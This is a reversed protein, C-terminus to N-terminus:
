ADLVLINHDLAYRSTIFQWVGDLLVDWVSEDSRVIGLVVGNCVRSRRM